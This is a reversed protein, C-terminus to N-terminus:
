HPRVLKEADDLLELGKAVREAQAAQQAAREAPTLVGLKKRMADAAAKGETEEIVTLHGLAQVDAPACGIGSELPLGTLPHRRADAGYVAKEIDTLPLTPDIPM